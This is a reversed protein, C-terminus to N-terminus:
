ISDDEEVPELVTEESLNERDAQLYAHLKEYIRILMLDRMDTWPEGDPLFKELYDDTTFLPEPQGMAINKKLLRILATRFQHVYRASELPYILKKADEKQVMECVRDALDLIAQIREKKMLRVEKCYAKAIEVPVLSKSDRRRYMRRLINQGALLMQYIINPNNKYDEDALAGANKKTSKWVGESEVFDAQKIRFHRRVFRQWAIKIDPWAPNQVVWLFTFVTAPLDYIECEPSAGFNTFYFLRLDQPEFSQQEDYWKTIIEDVLSFFANQPNKIDYKLIGESKGHALNVLNQEVTRQRWFKKLGDTQTQLLVIKGCQLVALPTLFLSALCSACLFLGSEHAHHFNLFAGSGSLPFIDRGSGYLSSKRGCGRCCSIEAKSGYPSRNSFATRYFKLAEEKGKPRKKPQTIVGNLSLADIRSHWKEQYVNAVWEIVKLWNEPSDDEIQLSSFVAEAALGGADIFPDGTVRSKM